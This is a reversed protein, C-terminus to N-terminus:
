PAQLLRTALEGKLARIAHLRRATDFPAYIGMGAVFVVGVWILPGLTPLANTVGLLIYVCTFAGFFVPYFWRNRLAESEKEALLQEWQPIDIDLPLQRNKIARQMLSATDPGGNRQWMQAIFWSMSAGFLIGGVVAGFAAPMAARSYDGARGAIFFIGGGIGGGFLVSSMLFVLVLARRYKKQPPWKALSRRSKM